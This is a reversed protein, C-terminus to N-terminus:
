EMFQKFNFGYEGGWIYNPNYNAVRDVGPYEGADGWYIYQDKGSIKFYLQPDSLSNDYVTKILKVKTEAASQFGNVNAIVPTVAFAM